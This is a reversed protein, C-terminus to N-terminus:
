AVAPSTTTLRNSGPGRRAEPGGGVVPGRRRAVAQARQRPDAGIRGGRDGGDGELLRFRDDIAIDLADHRTKERHRGRQGGGLGFQRGLHLGHALGHGHPPREPLGEALRQSRQLDIARPKAGAPLPVDVPASVALPLM